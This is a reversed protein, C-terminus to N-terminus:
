KGLIVLSFNLVQWSFLVTSHVTFCHGSCQRNGLFVSVKETFAPWAARSNGKEYLIDKLSLSMFLLQLSVATSFESEWQSLFQVFLLPTVSVSHSPSPFFSYHDYMRKKKKIMTSTNPVSLCLFLSDLRDSFMDTKNSLQMHQLKKFVSLWLVTHGAPMILKTWCIWCSEQRVPFGLLLM